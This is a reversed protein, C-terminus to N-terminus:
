KDLTELKRFMPATQWLARMDSVALRHSKPHWEVRVAGVEDTRLVAAGSQLLREVTDQSPHGYSNRGVSIVAISPKVAELFRASTASSSGHHGVKLVDARLVGHGEPGLCRFVEQEFKRGADACLLMSFEGCVVHFVLSAENPDFTLNGSFGVDGELSTGRLGDGVAEPGGGYVIPNIMELRVSGANIQNGRVLQAFSPANSYQCESGVLIGDIWAQDMGRPIMVTDTQVKGALAAFGGAHDLHEHTIIAADIHRKGCRELYPLVHREGARETGADILLTHGEPTFLVAADGQGVSLFVVELPRPWAIVVGLILAAITLVIGLKDRCIRSLRRAARFRAFRDWALWWIVSVMLYYAVLEFSRLKRCCITAGPLSSMWGVLHTLVRLVVGVGTIIASGVWPLFPYIACGVVGATMVVSALPLAALNTLPGVFCVQGTMNAIIPWTAIQIGVSVTLVQIILASLGLPANERPRTAFPAFAALAGVALYSMQFGANWLLLPNILLQVSAGIALPHILSGKRRRAKALVAVTLMLWARVVSARLGAAVAYIGGFLVAAIDVAEPSAGVIGVLAGFLGAVLGVHLGSAALLHAAGSKRFSELIIPDVGRYDGFMMGALLDREPPDLVASASAVMQRRVADAVLLLPRRGNRGAFVMSDHEAWAVAHIGQQLLIMRYDPEGPNMPRDAYEVQVRAWVIDGVRVDWTVWDEEHGWRPRIRVAGVASGNSGQDMVTDVDLILEAPDVYPWVSRITGRVMVDRGAYRAISRAAMGDTREMAVAGLSMGALALVAWALVARRKKSLRLTEIRAFAIGALVLWAWRLCFGAERFGLLIGVILFLAIVPAVACAGLNGHTVSTGFGFLHKGPNENGATLAM